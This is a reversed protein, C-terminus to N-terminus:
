KIIWIYEKFIDAHTDAKQMFKWLRVVWSVSMTEHHM